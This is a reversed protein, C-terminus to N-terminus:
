IDGGGECDASLVPLPFGMRYFGVLEGIPAVELMVQDIPSRLGDFKVDGGHVEPYIIVCPVVASSQEETEQIGLKKLAKRDRAYGALQRIDDVDFAGAGYRPKYKADLILPREGDVYLFDSKGTTVNAQYIIQRQAERAAHGRKATGSGADQRCDAGCVAVGTQNKKRMDKGAKM